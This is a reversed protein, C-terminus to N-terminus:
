RLLTPSGLGLSLGNTGALAGAGPVSFVISLSIPVGAANRVTVDVEFATQDLPSPSVRVSTVAYLREKASVVQHKSQYAQHAQMNALATQVDGTILSAAAGIAKTGIRSLIASGYDPQYPNSRLQTLLIKLAAQYLLNEDQILVADGQLNFRYDNEIYTGSCRPCWGGETVYTLKFGPNQRVPAVFKPYRGTITSPSSALVWGPYVQRGQAGRQVAFGLSSAGSGGVRLSSRVGVSGADTLVLHGRVVEVAVDNLGNILLRQIARPDIRNGVPLDFTATETSGQVTFTHDCSDIRFPGSTSGELQAQAYLGGPPIYAEDNVLVRVVNSSAVPGKPVLSKRDSGLATVEEMVLHPCPFAIQFDKSM